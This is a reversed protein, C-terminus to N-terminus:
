SFLFNSTLSNKRYREQMRRYATEHKHGEILAKIAEEAEEINEEKGIISVTNGYVSIKTSTFSEIYKKARGKSGIIRAKIQQIRKKNKTYSEIDIISLYYDDNLLLLADKENFGRGFALLINKALYEKYNDDSEIVIQNEKVTIKCKCSEEVRQILNSNLLDDVREKPILFVQM